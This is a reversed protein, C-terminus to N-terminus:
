EKQDKERCEKEKQREGDWDEEEETDLWNSQPLSVTPAPLFFIPCPRSLSSCMACYTARQSTVTLPPNPIAAVMALTAMASKIASFWAGM